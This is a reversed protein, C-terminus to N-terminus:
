NNKSNEKETRPLDLCSTQNQPFYRICFGNDNWWGSHSRLRSLPALGLLQSLHGVQGGAAGALEAVRAGVVLAAQHRQDM